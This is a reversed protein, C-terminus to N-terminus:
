VVAHDVGWVRRLLLHLLTSPGPTDTICFVGSEVIHKSPADEVEVQAPLTTSTINGHSLAAKDRGSQVEARNVGPAYASADSRRDVVLMGRTIAGTSTPLSQVFSLV